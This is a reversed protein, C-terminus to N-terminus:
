RTTATIHLERRLPVPNAFDDWYSSYREATDLVRLVDAEPAPSEVRVIYRVETYGPRV